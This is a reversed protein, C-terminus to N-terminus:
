KGTKVEVCEDPRLFKKRCFNPPCCRGINFKCQVCDQRTDFSPSDDDDDDDDNSDADTLMSRLFMQARKDSLELNNDNDKLSRKADVLSVIFLLAFAAVLIITKM